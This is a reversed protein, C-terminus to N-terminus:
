RACYFRFDHKSDRYEIREAPREHQALWARGEPTSAIMNYADAEVWLPKEVRHAYDLDRGLEALDPGDLGMWAAQSDFYSITWLDTHFHHFVIPTGPPWASRQLLAFRLPANSEIRSQPYIDLGLNWLFLIAALQAAARFPFRPGLSLMGAAIMPPLYYLRYFTNQPMWFFLFAVYVALWALLARPPRSFRMTERARWMAGLFMAITVIAAALALKSFLDGVFADPKGGFLLRLTGRLTLALDRLPQFSFGSDPSHYVVWSLLQPIRIDGFVVRCAALYAIGVPVLAAISYAIRNKPLKIWAIPLFLIALEHFLMAAATALGAVIAQPLSVVADDLLVFACLLFFISPIYANADTSFKWWTASFALLLAGAVGIDPPAENKRLIRYILFVCVGGLISNARQLLFLARTKVAAAYLWSGALAYALHNPHLLKALPTHKEIDIAFAVGDWYYNRTPLILYVLLPLTLLLARAIRSTM